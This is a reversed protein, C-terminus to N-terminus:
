LDTKFRERYHEKFDSWTTQHEQTGSHEAVYSALLSGMQGSTQLDRDELLGKLFGARYADGCGTPNQACPVAVVPIEVPKKEGHNWAFISSGQDGRTLILLPTRELTEKLSLDTKQQFLSWEYENLFLGAASAIAQLLEEGTFLALNQGPDFFYPKGIRQATQVYGTMRRPDDPAILIAQAREFFPAADILAEDAMAGPYFETIQRGQPDTIITAVPTSLETSRHLHDVVVANTKLWTEYDGFDFGVAGLIIPREELLALNFGINGATGGFYRKKQPVFFCVSLNSLQEPLLVSDFPEPYHSLYDYAVSGTVVVRPDHSRADISPPM